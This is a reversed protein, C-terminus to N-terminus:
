IIARISQDSEAAAIADGMEGYMERTLANKKDARNLTLTLVGQSREILLHESM